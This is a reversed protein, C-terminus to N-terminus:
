GEKEIMTLIDRLHVGYDFKGPCVYSCLGLDEEELELVGLAEAREMDRVLISRLIFTPLIDLPFVREYAGLPVMARDSGNTSSTMAFKRGPFLKSIFTNLNSHKDGGPGLWGLFARERDEEVVSIQQHYRGLYGHVDGNASRGSLVSGSIWRMEGGEVEGGVVDAIAAGVRTRLLRPRQVPPGALSVVRDMDLEGGGFLKGIALVDQAGVYWVLKNRDVPDLRHIHYGVTGSPHPGSFEEVQFKGDKPVQLDTGPAKCVYVTGPTLKGLATLGREFDDGRGALIVGLDPALPSSDVATVFISRPRQEPNAVRGYPRGRLATWLGSELLLARVQDGGLESPHKGTDETFRVTEAKGAREDSDLEIVVTQLARREGRNVAVVKGGAIATFRVGPTKKDEFLLQGRRVQDGVQVHMTPKMGHYDAAVIAVRNPAPASDITQQPEGAIPLDLGKKNRHLAM